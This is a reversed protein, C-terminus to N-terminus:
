RVPRNRRGCPSCAGYRMGPSHSIGLPTWSPRRKAKQNTRLRRFRNPNWRAAPSRRWLGRRGLNAAERVDFNGVWGSWRM